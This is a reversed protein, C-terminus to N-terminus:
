IYFSVKQVIKNLEETSISDGYNDLEIQIDKLLKNDEFTDPDTIDLLSKIKDTKFSEVQYIDLYLTQFSEENLFYYLFSTLSINDKGCKEEFKRFEFTHVLDNGYYKRLITQLDDHSYQKHQVILEDLEKKKQNMRSKLILLDIVFKQLKRETNFSKMDTYNIQHSLKGISSCKKFKMIWLDKWAEDIGIRKTVDYKMLREVLYKAEKSISEWCNKDFLLKGKKINDIVENSTNGRYPAIGSLLFYLLVGCSWNDNKGQFIKDSHFNEPPSFYPFMFRNSLKTAKNYYHFIGFDIIKILYTNEDIVINEPIIQKHVIGKSHLYFISSFVQEIIVAVIRETIGKLNPLQEFLTPHLNTNETIVYYNKEDIFFDFVKILNPHDLGLLIDIEKTLEEEERTKFSDKRIVKLVRVDSTKLHIVKYSSYFQSIRLADVIKYNNNMEEVKHDIKPTIKEPKDPPGEFSKDKTTSKSEFKNPITNSKVITEGQVKSNFCGM